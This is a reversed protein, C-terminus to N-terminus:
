QAQDQQPNQNGIISNCVSTTATNAVTIAATPRINVHVRGAGVTGVGEPLQGHKREYWVYYMIPWIIFAAADIAHLFVMSEGTTFLFTYLEVEDWDNKHGYFFVILDAAVGVVNKTVEFLVLKLIRRSNGIDENVHRLKWAFVVIGIQLLIFYVHMLEVYLQTWQDDLGRILVDCYPFVGGETRLVAYKRPALIQRTTMLGIGVLQAVLFPGFIHRHLVKRNRRFQMVKHVRYLKCILVTLITLVGSYVLWESLNCVFDLGPTPETDNTETVTSYVIARCAVSTGVILSGVCMVILMRPQAMAVIRKDQFRYLFILTAVNILFILVALVTSYIWLWGSYYQTM